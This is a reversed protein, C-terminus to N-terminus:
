NGGKAAGPGRGKPVVDSDAVPEAVVVRRRRKAVPADVSVDCSGGGLNACIEDVEDDDLPSPSEAEQQAAATKQLLTPDKLFRQVNKNLDAYKFGIPM